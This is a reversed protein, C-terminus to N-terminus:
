PLLPMLKIVQKSMDHSNRTILKGYGLEYDM